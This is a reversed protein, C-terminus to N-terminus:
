NGHTQLSDALNSPLSSLLVVTDFLEIFITPAHPNSGCVGVTDVGDWTVASLAYDNGVRWVNVIRSSFDSKRQM